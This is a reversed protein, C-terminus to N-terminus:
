QSSSCWCMRVRTVYPKGRPWSLRTLGVQECMGWGTSRRDAEARLMLATAGTAEQHWETGLVSEDTDDPLWTPIRPVVKMSAM